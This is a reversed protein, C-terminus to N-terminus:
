SISAQLFFSDLDPFEPKEQGYHTERVSPHPFNERFCVILRCVGPLIELIFISMVITVEIQDIHISCPVMRKAQSDSSMLIFMRDQSVFVLMVFGYNSDFSQKAVLLYRGTRTKRHSVSALICADMENIKFGQSMTSKPKRLSFTLLHSALNITLFAQSISFKIQERSHNKVTCDYFQASM